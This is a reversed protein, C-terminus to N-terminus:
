RQPAFVPGHRGLERVCEFPIHLKVQPLGTLLLLDALRREANVRIVVYVDASGMQRVRAGVHPAGDQRPLPEHCHLEVPCVRSGRSVRKRGVRRHGPQAHVDRLCRPEVSESAPPIAFTTKRDPRLSEHLPRILHPPM